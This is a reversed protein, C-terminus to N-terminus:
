KVKKPIDDKIKHCPVCLLQKNEDGLNGGGLSVPIIHDLTLKDFQNKAKIEIETIGCHNCKKGDRRGIRRRSQRNDKGM